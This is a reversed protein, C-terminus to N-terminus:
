IFRMLHVYSKLVMKLFSHKQCFCNMYISMMLRLNIKTM